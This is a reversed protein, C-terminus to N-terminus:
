CRNGGSGRSTTSKPSTTRTKTNPSPTPQPTRTSSRPTPPSQLLPHIRHLRHHTTTPHDLTPHLAREETLTRHFRELNGNTQPWRPRTRKHTTGTTKLAQAWLRSRCDPATTPSPGSPPSPSNPSGPAPAHGSDRRPPPKSTVSPRQTCWAPATTQPLTCTATATASARFEAAFPQGVVAGPMQKRSQALTLHGTFRRRDPPQGISETRTRVEAALEDTGAEPLALVRSGLRKSAPGLSVTTASGRFGRLGDGVEEPEVEGLFRLTIHRQESTTWRLGEM